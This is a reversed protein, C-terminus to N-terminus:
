NDASNFKDPNATFAPTSVKKRVAGVHKIIVQQKAQCRLNADHVGIGEAMLFVAVVAAAWLLDVRWPGLYKGVLPVVQTLMAAALFCIILVGGLGWHWLMSGAGAFLLQLQLLM